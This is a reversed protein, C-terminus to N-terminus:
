SQSYREARIRGLLTSAPEYDRNQQRALEAETPVLKGRFAKTLIAQTTKEVRQTALAVRSEIKDAM